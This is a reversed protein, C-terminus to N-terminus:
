SSRGDPRPQAIALRHLLHAFVGPDAVTLDAERAVETPSEPSVIGVCVATDLGGDRVLDRLRRFADLDTRDDGAYLAHRIPGGDLLEQIAVGKDFHIPPRIELVKRGRHVELGEAGAEAAIENVVAEAIREEVAGRWHVARIPGKDELGLGAAALRRDDLTDVFRSADEEHGALVSSARAEAEGPDLRELGHNGVYTAGDVAVIRRADSARRGSVCGVLAYSQALRALWERTEPPVEAAGPDDVIPALTGDVDLLLASERPNACLTEILM